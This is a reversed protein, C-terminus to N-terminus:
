SCSSCLTLLWPKTTLPSSKCGLLQPNLYQRQIRTLLSSSQVFTIIYYLPLCNRLGFYTCKVFHLNKEIIKWNKIKVIIKMKRTLSQVTEKNDHSFFSTKKWCFIKRKYGVKSQVKFVWPGNFSFTIFFM